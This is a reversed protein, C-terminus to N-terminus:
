NESINTHSNGKKRAIKIIINIPTFCDFSYKSHVHLDIKLHNM